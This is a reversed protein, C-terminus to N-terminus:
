LVFRRFELKPRGFNLLLGVHIGSARLYNLIQATHVSELAACAKLEVLVRSDVIMDAVYDGVVVSQYQVKFAVEQSVPLGFARMEVALANAYVRELFGAGLTNHVAFACQLVKGTLEEEPYSAASEGETTARKKGDHEDANM